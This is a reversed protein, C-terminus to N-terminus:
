LEEKISKKIKESLKKKKDDKSKNKEEKGEDNETKSDGEKETLCASDAKSDKLYRDLCLYTMLDKDQHHFYWDEIDEEYENTIIFCQKHLERVEASTENWLDYPIDMKVDVGRNVLNQLTSMTESRKKAFRLSNKRENHVNYDLLRECVHPENLVDYLRLESTQYKIKKKKTDLGHGTELVQGSKTESLKSVFETALYKCVECKTPPKVWSDDCVINDSLYIVFSLLVCITAYVLGKM